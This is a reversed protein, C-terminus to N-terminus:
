VKEAQGNDPIKKYESRKVLKNLEGCQNCRFGLPFQVLTPTGNSTQFQSAARLLHAPSFGTGGCGECVIEELDEAKVGPLLNPALVRLQERASRNAVQQERTMLKNKMM